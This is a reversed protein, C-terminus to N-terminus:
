FNLKNATKKVEEEFWKMDKGKIKLTIEIIAKVWDDTEDLGGLCAVTTTLNDIPEAGALNCEQCIAISMAMVASSCVSAGPTGCVGCVLEKEPCWDPTKGGWLFSALLIERNALSCQPPTFPISKFYRCDGGCEKLM